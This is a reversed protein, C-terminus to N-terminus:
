LQEQGVGTEAQSVLVERSPIAGEEYLAKRRDYIKQATNLAAEAAALQARAKEIEGPLTSASLKEYLAEVESVALQAEARADELDRNALVALVQDKHVVSGKAAHLERIPAAMRASISAQQRPYLTAPGSVSAQWAREEAVATTVEVVLKTEAPDKSRCGACALLVSAVLPPVLRKM